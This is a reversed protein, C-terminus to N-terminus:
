LVGSFVKQDVTGAQKMPRYQYKHREWSRKSGYVLCATDPVMNTLQLLHAAPIHQRIFTPNKPPTSPALTAVTAVCRLCSRWSDV